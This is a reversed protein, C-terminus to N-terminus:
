SSKEALKADIHELVGTRKKNAREYTAVRRMEAPSLRDVRRNVEEVNLDDYNAIPPKAGNGGSSTSKSAQPRRRRATSAASRAAKRAGSAASRAQKAVPTEAAAYTSQGTTAAAVFARTLDPILKRLDALMKEEDSRHSAALKATEADGVAQAAAEVADYVAIELAEAAVEDKANRLLKEEVSWGRVMDIPGKALVIAQGTLTQAIGVGVAVLSAHASLADLRRGITRAHDKTEELHRELRERYDSPPTMALHARLNTVLSRELARAEELYHVVVRRGAEIQALDGADIITKESTEAMHPDDGKGPSLLGHWV